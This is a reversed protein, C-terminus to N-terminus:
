VTTSKTCRSKRSFSDRPDLFGVCRGFFPLRFQVCSSPTLFWVTHQLFTQFAISSLYTLFQSKHAINSFYFPWNSTTRSFVAESTQILVVLKFLCILFSCHIKIKFSICGQFRRRKWKRRRRRKRRTWRNKSWTWDQFSIWPFSM